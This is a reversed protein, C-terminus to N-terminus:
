PTEGRGVLEVLRPAISRLPLVEHALGREIAAAPMGFVVSTEQDQAIVRGGRERVVGLGSVGDEGMGTLIAALTARGYCNAVSEFLPSGSPRFGNDPPADSLRFVGKADVLLHRDDPAFYVVGACPEMGHEAIAIELRTTSRLWAVLGPTFGVAIHQVIAIPAGFTRPLEGLVHQLAAPGGTSAAIAVFRARVRRVVPEAAVAPFGHGAAWRRVVKVEAMSKITRAFEKARAEFDPLEPGTPKPLAVLAGASLADMSTAVEPLVAASVVVIPTPVTSMIRKTAEIGDMEPMMVDMTVVDPRLRQTLEVAEVGSTAEAVVEIDPDSRLIEVILRRATPSDEAVIARIVM